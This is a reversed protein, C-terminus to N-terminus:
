CAGGADARSVCADKLSHNDPNFFFIYLMNPFNTASSKLAIFTKLLCLVETEQFFVSDIGQIYAVQHYTNYFFIRRLDEDKGTM